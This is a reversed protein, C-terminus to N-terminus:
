REKGRDNTQLVHAAQQQRAATICEHIAVSPKSLRQRLLKEYNVRPVDLHIDSRDLLPGSIRKQYRAVV